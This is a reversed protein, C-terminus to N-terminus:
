NKKIRSFGLCGSVRNHLLLLLLLFLTSRRVYTSCPFTYLTLWGVDKTEKGPIPIYSYEDLYVLVYTGVQIADMETRDVRSGFITIFLM